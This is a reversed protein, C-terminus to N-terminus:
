RELSEQKITIELWAEEAKELAAKAKELRSANKAFGDPDKEFLAPDGLRENLSAIERELKEIEGPLTKLAYQEKYTLKAPATRPPPASSRAQV